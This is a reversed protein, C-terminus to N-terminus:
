LTEIEEISLETVESIQEFSMGMSKLKVAHELNLRRNEELIGEEKGIAKGEELGEAHGEAHGKVYGDHERVKDREERTLNAELISMIAGKQRSLFETLVGEALCERIARDVAYELDHTEDYYRRIKHILLSYGNLTKCKELLEAGSDYNVNIAKVIVEASIIDCEGAFADSLKMTWEPPMETKGNYFMYLEPTPIPQLTTSFIASKDTIKEYERALYSFMRVPINPCLTSQHETLIIFKEEVIFALDDKIDDFVVNDLTVIEVPTDKPYEKGSLASYLELLNEEDNFLSRFIGDKYERNAKQEM